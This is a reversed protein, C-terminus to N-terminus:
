IKIKLLEPSSATLLAGSHSDFSMYAFSWNKLWPVLVEIVKTGEMMTEQLLIISPKISTIMRKLAKLKLSSGLGRVNFSLCLM